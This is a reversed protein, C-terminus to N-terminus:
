RMPETALLDMLAVTLVQRLGELDADGPHLAWQQSIGDLMGLVVLGPQHRLRVCRFRSAAAQLLEDLADRLARYYGGLLAAAEPDRVAQLRSELSLVVAEPLDRIQALWLEVLGDVLEPLSQATQALARLPELGSARHAILAQFLAHKSAFHHYVAGKSAGAEAAVDDITARGYGRRAFVRAAAELLLQRTQAAQRQRLTM